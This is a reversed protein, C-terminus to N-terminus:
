KEGRGEKLYEVHITATNQVGLLYIGLKKKNM